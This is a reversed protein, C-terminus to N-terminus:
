HLDGYQLNYAERQDQRREEAQRRLLWTRGRGLLIKRFLDCSRSFRKSRNRGIRALPLKVGVTTTTVSSWFLKRRADYTGNNAMHTHAGRETRLVLSVNKSIERGLKRQMGVVEVEVSEIEVLSIPREHFM